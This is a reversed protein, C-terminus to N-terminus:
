TCTNMVAEKPIMAATERLGRVFNIASKMQAIVIGKKRRSRVRLVISAVTRGPRSAQIKRPRRPFKTTRTARSATAKTARSLQSENTM